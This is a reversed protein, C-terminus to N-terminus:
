KSPPPAPGNMCVDFDVLRKANMACQLAAEEAFKGVLSQECGERFRDALTQAAKDINAKATDMQAASLKPNLKSAEDSRVLEGYKQALSACDKRMIERPQANGSSSPPTASPEASPAPDATPGVTPPAVPDPESNTAVSPEPKQSSCGLLAFAALWRLHSSM